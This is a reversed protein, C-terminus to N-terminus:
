PASAPIVGHTSSSGSGIFVMGTGDYARSVLAYDGNPLQAFGRGLNPSVATTILEVSFLIGTQSSTMAKSADFTGAPAQTGDFFLLAGERTASEPGWSSSGVLVNGNELVRLSTGLGPAGNNATGLMSNAASIVGFTRSPGYSGDDGHGLSVKGNNRPSAFVYDGNPLPYFEDGSMGGIREGSFRGVLSNGASIYSGGSGGPLGTEGNIWTLAGVPVGDSNKWGNTGVVYNGKATRIGGKGGGTFASSTSAVLSNAVTVPGNVSAGVGLVGKRWTAAGVDPMPASCGTTDTCDWDPSGVVYNGREPHDSDTLALVNIGVNDNSSTGHLSNTETVPGVAGAGDDCLTAAGAATVSAHAWLPSPVVYNGNSLAVTGASSVNDGAQSGHLSNSVTVPGNASTGDGKRWTAAGVNSINTSGDAATGDWLPSSVVYNGNSLVTVGREGTMYFNKYSNIWSDQTPKSIKSVVGHGISDNEKSGVLSNVVTVPGVTTGDGHSWTVAGVDTINASGDAATGDWFQSLVVYHGNPLPYISEGVRDEAKSGVLSNAVTVPGNPSAGDGFVGHRLTVAGVNLINTGNTATGDWLSSSVVYDGDTLVTISRRGVQDETKSGVLSNAMSVPGVTTGNGNGLTVAGADTVSDNDWSYSRVVYHGNPLPILGLGTYSNIEGVKDNAKSGVLSNEPTIISGGATGDALRTQGTRGDVWTAAGADTAPGNDWNPSSVVYNGKTLDPDTLAVVQGSTETVSVLGVKDDEHSGTLPSGIMAGTAGNYLTVSGANIIPITDIMVDQYPRAVVVNGNSLAFVTMDQGDDSTYSTPELSLIIMFERTTETSGLAGVFTKARIKQSRTISLPSEAVYAASSVTPEAGDITYRIVGPSTPAVFAVSQASRFFGAAPSSSTFIPSLPTVTVEQSPQTVTGVIYKPASTGSLSVACGIIARLGADAGSLVCSDATVSATVGSPLTEPFSVSVGSPLSTLGDLTKSMTGSATLTFSLQTPTSPYFAKARKVCASGSDVGDACRAKLRDMGAPVTGTAPEPADGAVLSFTIMHQSPSSELGDIMAQTPQFVISGDATPNFLGAELCDVKKDCSAIPDGGNIRVNRFLYVGPIVPFNGNVTYRLLSATTGDHVTFGPTGETHSILRLGGM